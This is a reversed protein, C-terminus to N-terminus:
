SYLCVCTEVFRENFCATTGLDMSMSGAQQRGGGM